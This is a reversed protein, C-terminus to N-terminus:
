GPTPTAWRPRGPRTRAAYNGEVLNYAAPTGTGDLRILIGISNDSIVNRAAATTGGVTNYTAGNHILVGYSSNGIAHSGTIDTGIFNGAVLNGSTGVHSIDLGNHNGSIVNGSVTNSEAGKFIGVGTGQSGLAATGTGNTGIFNGAM